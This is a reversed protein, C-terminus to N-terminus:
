IRPVGGLHGTRYIPVIPRDNRLVRDSVEDLRYCFSKGHEKNVIVTRYKGMLDLIDTNHTSFLLQAHLPNTKESLFLNVLHALIDPHLYVDFEDMILVGGTSLILKYLLLIRFLEQSGRSQSTYALKKRDGDVDFEFVPVYHDRGDTQRVDISVDSIGTDFRKLYEKAFAFLNDNDNYLKSVDGVSMGLGHMLGFYNVNSRIKDFFLYFPELEAVLYQRAVSIVSANKRDVANFEKTYLTNKLIEGKERNFVLVKRKEKKYIKESLVEKRTLALDYSYEIKDIMFKVNFESKESSDFFPEFLIDNEPKISFSDTCFYSIFALAKLVNTKGSANAGIISIATAAPLGQSVDHPVKANFSLDIEMWEKFCCFNKVSYSLLM